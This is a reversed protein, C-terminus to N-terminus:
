RKVIAQMISGHRSLFPNGYLEWGADLYGGINSHASSVSIITYHKIKKVLDDEFGGAVPTHPYVSTNVQPTTM